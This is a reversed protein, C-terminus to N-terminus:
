NTESSIKLGTHERVISLKVKKGFIPNITEATDRNSFMSLQGEFKLIPMANIAM